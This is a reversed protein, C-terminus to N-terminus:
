SNEAVAEGLSASPNSVPRKGYHFGIEDEYGTPVLKHIAARLAAVLRSWSGPRAAPVIRGGRNPTPLWKPGVGTQTHSMTTM